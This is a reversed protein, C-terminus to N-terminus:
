PNRHETGGNVKRGRKAKKLVWYIVVVVAALLLAVANALDFWFRSSQNMFVPRCSAGIIRAPARNEAFLIVTSGILAIVSLPRGVRLTRAKEPRDKWDIARQRVAFVLSTCLLVLVVDMLRDSVPFGRSPGLTFLCVAALLGVLLAAWGTLSCLLWNIRSPKKDPLNRAM